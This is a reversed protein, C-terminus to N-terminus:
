IPSTSPVLWLFTYELCFSSSTGPASLCPFTHHWSFPHSPVGLSKANKSMLHSILLSLPWSMFFGIEWGPMYTALLWQLTWNCSHGPCVQTKSENGQSGHCFVVDWFMIPHGPWLRSGAAQIRWHGSSQSTWQLVIRLLGQPWQLRSGTLFSLHLLPVWPGEKPPGQSWPCGQTIAPQTVLLGQCILFHPSYTSVGSTSSGLLCSFLIQWM